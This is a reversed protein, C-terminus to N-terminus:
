WTFHTSNQKAGWETWQRMSRQEEARKTKNLKIQGVKRTLFCDEQQSNESNQLAPSM